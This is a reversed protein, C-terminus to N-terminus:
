KGAMASVETFVEQLWKEALAEIDFRKAHQAWNIPDSGNFAANRLLSSWMVPQSQSLNVWGPYDALTEKLAASETALVKCGAAMAEMAAVCSIEDFRTPYLWISATKLEHAIQHWNVLGRRVVGPTEDALRLCDAQFERLVTEHGLDPVYGAVQHNCADDFAELFGYFLHLKWGEKVLGSEDFIRISTQWGRTPCSLYVIKKEKPEGNYLHVNLDIGNRTYFVKGEPVTPHKQRQFKSLFFVKDVRKLVEPTWVSDHGVDHMWVYVRGAAPKIEAAAQPCRWLLVYDRYLKPNFTAYHRWHVGEYKGPPDALRCYVTVSLGRKALRKAMLWVMKESAGLGRGDTKPGWRTSTHPCFIALTKAAGYGGPVAREPSAFGYDAAHPSINIAMATEYPDRSATRVAVVQAQAVKEAQAWRSIDDFARKVEPNRGNERMAQGVYRMALDPQRLERAAWAGLLPPIVEFSTPDVAHLTDPVPRGEAQQLCELVAKWHRMRFYLEAKMHLPRPDLPKIKAAKDAIDLAEWFRELQTLAHVWSVYAMFVDEYNGSIDVFKKYFEISEKWRHLGRCANGLYFYTRPDDHKKVDLDWRMIVYNRLDSFQTAPPKKHIVRSPFNPDRAMFNIHRERDKKFVLVEHCAGKWEYDEKSVVRERWLTLICEGHQNFAYDYPLFLAGHRNGDKFCMDIYQRLAVPETLSDDLDLWMVVRNRAMDFSHQRAAAFSEIIGTKIHGHNKFKELEKGAVKKAYELLEKSIFHSGDIVLWGCKAAREATKDTSGTDVFIVEDKTHGFLQKVVERDFRDVDKECNRGILCLSIPVKVKYGSM